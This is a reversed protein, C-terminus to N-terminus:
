RSRETVDSIQLEPIVANRKYSSLM